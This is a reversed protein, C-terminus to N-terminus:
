IKDEIFKIREKVDIIETIRFGFKDNVVVIEGKAVLKGNVMLDLPESSHRDLEIVSGQNFGLLNRIPQKTTGVLVSMTIPINLISQLDIKHM